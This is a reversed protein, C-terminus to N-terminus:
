DEYHENPHGYSISYPGGVKGSTPCAAEAIPSTAQPTCKSVSSVGDLCEVAEYQQYIKDESPCKSATAHTVNRADFRDQAEIGFCACTQLVSMLHSPDSLGM